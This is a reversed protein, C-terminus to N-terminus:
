PASKNNRIEYPPDHVTTGEHRKKCKEGEEMHISQSLILTHIHSLKTHKHWESCSDMHWCTTHKRKGSHCCTSTSVETSKVGICVPSRVSLMCKVNHYNRQCLTVSMKSPRVCVRACSVWECMWGTDYMLCVCVCMDVCSCLEDDLCFCVASFVPVNFSLTHTHTKFTYTHIINPECHKEDTHFASFNM